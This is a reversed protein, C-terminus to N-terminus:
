HEKNYSWHHKHKGLPTEIHQSHTQAEKKEPYKKYYKQMTCAKQEPTPKHKDKYGLRYYKERGRKKEADVWEPLKSLVAERARVDTKTCDKCKGLYGDAMQKHRYFESLEKKLGCKFCKKM